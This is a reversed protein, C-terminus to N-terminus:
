VFCAENNDSMGLRAGVAYLGWTIVSLAVVGMAILSAILRGSHAVMYDRIARHGSGPGATQYFDAWVVFAFALAGVAATIATFKLTKKTKPSM